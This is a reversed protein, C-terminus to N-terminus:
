RPINRAHRGTPRDRSPPADSSRRAPGSSSLGPEVPCVALYRRPAGRSSAPEDIVIPPNRTGCPPSPCHLLSCVASPRRRTHVQLRPPPVPLPSLTRPPPGRGAPADCSTGRRRTLAWRPRPLAAPGTFGPRLLALYAALSPGDRVARARSRRLWGRTPQQLAHTVVSRSFHGDSPPAAAWRVGDDVSGPKCVPRWAGGGSSGTGQAGGNLEQRQRM